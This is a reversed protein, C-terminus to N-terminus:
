LGAIRDADLLEILLLLVILVRVLTGGAGRLVGVADTTEGGGAIRRCGERIRNVSDGASGRESESPRPTSWTASRPCPSARTRVHPAHQFMSNSVVGGSWLKWELSRRDLRSHPLTNFILIRCM